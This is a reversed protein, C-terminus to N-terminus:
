PAQTKANKMLILVHYLKYVQKCYSSLLNIFKGHVFKVPNSPVM